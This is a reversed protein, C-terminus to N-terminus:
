PCPSANAREAGVSDYGKTGEETLTNAATVLYYYAQGPAPVAADTDTAAALGGDFCGGYTLNAITALDGRYLQYAGVSPDPQWALTQSDQFYLPYIEQPPPYAAVFGGSVQFSSSSLVAPYLGEGISDITAQYSASTAITGGEPRGGENLVHENQTYSASQQGFAAAALALILLSLWARKM